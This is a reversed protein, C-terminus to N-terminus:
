VSALREAGNLVTEARELESSVPGFQKDCEKMKNIMNFVNQKLSEILDTNFVTSTVLKIRDVAERIAREVAAIDFANKVKRVEQVVNNVEEPVPILCQLLPNIAFVDDLRSESRSLFSCLEAVCNKFAEVAEDAVAKALNIAKQILQVLVDAVQEAKQIEAQFYNRTDKFIHLLNKVHGHTRKVDDVNQVNLDQSFLNEVESVITQIKTLLFKPLENVMNALLTLVDGVSNAANQFFTKIDNVVNFLAAPVSNRIREFVGELDRVFADWKVKIERKMGTIFADLLPALCDQFHFSDQVNQMARFITVMSGLDNVIYNTLAEQGPFVQVSDSIQKFCSLGGGEILSKELQASADKILSTTNQELQKVLPKIAQVVKDVQVM